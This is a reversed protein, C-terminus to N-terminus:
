EAAKLDRSEIHNALDLWMEKMSLFSTCVDPDQTQSAHKEAEIALLRCTAARDQEDSATITTSTTKKM